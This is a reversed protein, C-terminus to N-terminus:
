RQREGRKWVGAIEDIAEIRELPDAKLLLLDAFAGVEIVGRKGGPDVVRAAASTAMKLVEAPPIGLAALSKLEEHLGAGPFVGPIGTDTGAVLTVGAERLALVNQGINRDFDASRGTYEEFGHLDVKEPKKRFADEMGPRMVERELATFRPNGSMSSLWAAYIRRTTVVATGASAIARAQESTLVDEWPVHMLLAAGAQAAEVAGAATGVHVYVPRDLKKAEDVAAALDAKTVRPAEPPMAHYVVKVHHVGPESLEQRVRDRIADEGAVEAIGRRIMIGALFGPLGARYMGTPHGGPATFIRTATLLRPGAISRTLIERSLEESDADHGALVATTTGCYLHAAAQADADPLKSGIDWVAEGEVGGLHVHADFLGPLLVGGTVIEASAPADLKPGIAAIRGAQVLVDVPASLTDAKGDFVRVQRFMTQRETAPKPLILPTRACGALLLLVIAARTM